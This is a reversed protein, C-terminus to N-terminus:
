EQHQWSTLWKASHIRLDGAAMGLDADCRWNHHYRLNTTSRAMQLRQRPNHHTIIGRGCSVLMKILKCQEQLPPSHQRDSHQQYPKSTNTLDDEPPQNSKMQMLSTESSSIM